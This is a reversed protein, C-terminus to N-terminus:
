RVAKFNQLGAFRMSCVEYFQRYEPFTELFRTSRVSDYYDIYEKFRKRGQWVRHDAGGSRLVEAIKKTLHMFAHFTPQRSHIEREVYDTCEEFHSAFDATLILPNLHYPSSVMNDMLPVAKGFEDFLQKSLKLIDILSTANLLSLTTHFSLLDIAQSRVVKQLNNEFKSWELGYRIYEAKAGINDISAAVNVKFYCGLDDSISLFDELNKEPVSLNTVIQLYPRRVKGHQNKQKAVDIMKQLFFYLKKNLLPEGGIFIFKEITGFHRDIVTLIDKVFQEQLAEDVRVVKEISFRDHRVMEMEWASSFQPSCYLCKLNCLNGLSIELTKLAHAETLSDDRKWFNKKPEASPQNSKFFSERSQSTSRMSAGGSDESNWCKICDSHRIGQLMEKRRKKIYDNNLIYDPQKSLKKDVYFPPCQCCQRIQAQEINVQLYDWRYSCFSEKKFFNIM